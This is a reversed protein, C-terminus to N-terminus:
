GKKRRNLFCFVAIVAGILVLSGIISAVLVMVNTETKGDEYVLQTDKQLPAPLSTHQVQCSLTQGKLKETPLITVTSNVRYTGDINRQHNSLSSGNLVQKNRLLTVTIDMPYFGTVSCLLQDKEENTASKELLTITPQA